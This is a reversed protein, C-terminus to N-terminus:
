RARYDDHTDMGIKRSELFSQDAVQTHRVNEVLPRRVEARKLAQLTRPGRAVPFKNLVTFYHDNAKGYQHGWTIQAQEVGKSALRAGVVSVRRPCGIVLLLLEIAYYTLGPLGM